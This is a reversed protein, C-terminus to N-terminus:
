TDSKTAYYSRMRLSIFTEQLTSHQHLHKTCDELLEYDIRLELITTKNKHEKDVSVKVKVLCDWGWPRCIYARTFLQFYMILVFSCKSSAYIIYVVYDINDISSPMQPRGLRM